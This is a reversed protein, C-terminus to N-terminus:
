SHQAARIIEFAKRVLSTEDASAASDRLQWRRIGASRLAAVACRALVQCRFEDADGSDRDVLADAITQEFKLLLGPASRELKPGPPGEAFLWSLYSNERLRPALSTLAHEVAELPSEGAPRHRIEEALVPLWQEIDKVLLAEKGQFYRFFTRETVGAADAVDRVTTKEYGRSEFLSDAATQIAHRTAIKHAERKGVDPSMAPSDCLYTTM